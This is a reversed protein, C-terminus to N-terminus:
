RTWMTTSCTQPRYSSCTPTAASRSRSAVRSFSASPTISNLEPSLFRRHPTADDASHHAATLMCQHIHLSTELSVPCRQPLEMRIGRSLIFSGM